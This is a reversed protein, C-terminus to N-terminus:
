YITNQLFAFVTFAVAGVYLSTYVVARGIFAYVKNKDIKKMKKVEKRSTNKSKHKRTRCINKNFYNDNGRIECIIM